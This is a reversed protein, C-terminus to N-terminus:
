LVVTQRSRVGVKVTGYRGKLNGALICVTEKKSPNALQLKEQPMSFVTPAVKGSGDRLSIQFKGNQILTGHFCFFYDM